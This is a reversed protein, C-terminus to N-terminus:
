IFFDDEEKEKESAVIYDPINNTAVHEMAHVELKGPMQKKTFEPLSTLRKNELFSLLLFMYNNNNKDLYEDIKENLM